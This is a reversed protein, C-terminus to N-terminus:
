ISNAVQGYIDEKYYSNEPAHTGNKIVKRSSYVIDYQTDVVNVGVKKLLKEYWCLSKKVLVNGVVVSTGHKKYHIGVIDTLQLVHINKRLNSTDNHLKFQEDVLRSVLPKSKSKNVQTSQTKVQPVIYKSCLMNGNIHTFTDGVKLSKIDVFQQLSQLSMCMGDSIVGRLKIAKVRRQKVSIFGTKTPDVNHTSDTYCNNKSLYEHNIQTNTPFYLLVDNVQIDKSVVVTTNAVTAAVINDAGVIPTIRTVTVVTAAYNSGVPEVTYKM